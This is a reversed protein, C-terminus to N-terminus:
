HFGFSYPIEKAGVDWKSLLRNKDLQIDTGNMPDLPEFSLTQSHSIYVKYSLNLMCHQNHLRLLPVSSM